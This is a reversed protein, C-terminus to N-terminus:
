QRVLAVPIVEYKSPHSAFYALRRTGQRRRGSYIVAAQMDPTGYHGTQNFLGTKRDRVIYLDHTL